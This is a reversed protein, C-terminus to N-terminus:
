RYKKLVMQELAVILRSVEKPEMEKLTKGQVPCRKSKVWCGLVHLNAYTTGPEIWGLQRVLSLVKTHQPNSKDFYAYVKPTPKEGTTYYHILETLEIATLDTTTKINYGLVLSHNKLREERSSFRQSCITQLHKILKANQQTSM